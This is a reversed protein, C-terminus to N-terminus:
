QKAAEGPHLKARASADRVLEFANALRMGRLEPKVRGCDRVGAAIKHGAQVRALKMAANLVQM